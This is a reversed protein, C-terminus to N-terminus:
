RLIGWSQQPFLAFMRWKHLTMRLWLGAKLPNFSCHVFPM